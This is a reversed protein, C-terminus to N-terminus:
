DNPCDNEKKKETTFFLMTEGFSNYNAAIAKILWLGDLNLKNLTLM